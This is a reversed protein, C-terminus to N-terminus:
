KHNAEHAAVFTRFEQRYLTETLLLNERFSLKNVDKVTAVGDVLAIYVGSAFNDGQIYRGEKMLASLAEDFSHNFQIERDFQAKASAEASPPKTTSM